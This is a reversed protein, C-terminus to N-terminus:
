NQQRNHGSKLEQSGDFVNFDSTEECYVQISDDWEVIVFRPLVDDNGYAEIKIETGPIVTYDEAWPEVYVVLPKTRRNSVVLTSVVM